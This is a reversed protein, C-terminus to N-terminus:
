VEPPPLRAFLALSANVQSSLRDARRRANLSRMRELYEPDDKMRERYRANAERRAQAYTGLRLTKM